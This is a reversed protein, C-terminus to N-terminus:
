TSKAPRALCSLVCYDFGLLIRWKPPNYQKRLYLPAKKKLFLPSFILLVTVLESILFFLIHLRNGFDYLIGVLISVIIASIARQKSIDRFIMLSQYGSSIELRMM